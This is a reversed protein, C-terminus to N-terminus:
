NILKVKFKSMAKKVNEPSNVDWDYKLWGDIEKQLKLPAYKKLFGEATKHQGGKFDKGFWDFLKTVEVDGNWDPQIHLPNKLADKTQESLEVRINDSTFPVSKLGPCSVSACNVAFHIRADGMPRIMEHEIQDLSYNSGGINHRKNKWGIDKMSKVPLNNVVDVVTFFNYANILFSLKEYRSSPIKTTKLLTKQTELLKKAELSNRVKNYDFANHYFEGHEGSYKLEVVGIKLINAFNDWIKEQAHSFTSFIFLFTILLLRM